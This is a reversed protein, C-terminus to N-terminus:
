AFRFGRFHDVAPPLVDYKDHVVFLVRSCPNPTERFPALVTAFCSSGIGKKERIIGPQGDIMGCADGLERRLDQDIEVGEEPRRGWIVLQKNERCGFCNEGIIGHPAHTHFPYADRFLSMAFPTACATLSYGLSDLSSKPIRKM